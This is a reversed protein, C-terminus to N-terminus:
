LRFPELYKWGSREFLSIKKLPAEMWCYWVLRSQSDMRWKRHKSGSLTATSSSPITAVASPSWILCVNGSKRFGLWGQHGELPFSILKFPSAQKWPTASHRNLPVDVLLRMLRGSLQLSDTPVRFYHKFPRWTRSTISSLGFTHLFPNVLDLQSLQTNRPSSTTYQTLM